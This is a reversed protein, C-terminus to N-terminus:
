RKKNWKNQRKSTLHWYECYPCKYPRLKKYQQTESKRNARKIFLIEKKAESKDKYGIKNCM